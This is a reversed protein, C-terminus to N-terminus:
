TTQLYEAAAALEAVSKAVAIRGRGKTRWRGIDLRFRVVSITTSPNPRHHSRGRSFTRYSNVVSFTNLVHMKEKRLNIHIYGIDTEESMACTLGNEARHLLISSLMPMMQEHTGVVRHKMLRMKSAADTGFM